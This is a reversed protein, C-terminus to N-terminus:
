GLMENILGPVKSLEKAVSGTGDWGSIRANKFWPYHTESGFSAWHPSALQIAPTGVSAAMPFVATGVSVVIDLCAMLALVNDLDDKLNLDHWRLIKIGAAHEVELLEAECDGYQLNVFQCDPLQLFDKWDIVHSYGSNRSPNITGSRWCFGVLRKERYPELRVRFKSILESDPILYPDRSLSFSEIDRRYLNPLSGVPIHFDYDSFIPSSHEDLYYSQERVVFDSFSRQYIKVLRPDTELIVKCELKELEHLCTGFLIEDGVGQERWVLLTKEEGLLRGDWRPIPFTRAPQRAMNNPIKNSLGSEYFKFGKEILGSELYLFSLHYRLLDAHRGDTHTEQELLNELEAITQKGRGFGIQIKLRNIRAFENNPELLLATECAHLAEEFMQLDALASSLNNFALASKPNLKVAELSARLADQFQGLEQFTGALNIFVNANNPDLKASHQLVECAESIKRQKLLAAGLNSWAHANEPYRISWAAYIFGALEYQGRHMSENGFEVIPLLDGTHNKLLSDIKQIAEQETLNRLGILLANIRNSAANSSASRNSSLKKRTSMDTFYNEINFPTSKFIDQARILTILPLFNQSYGYYFALILM